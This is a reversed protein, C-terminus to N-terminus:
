IALWGPNLASMGFALTTLLSCLPPLSFSLLAGARSGVVLLSDFLVSVRLPLGSGHFFCYRGCGGLRGGSETVNAGEGDWLRWGASSDGEAVNQM